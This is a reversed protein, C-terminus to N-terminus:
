RPYTIIIEINMNNRIGDGLLVAVLADFDVVLSFKNAKEEFRFKKFDRRTIFGPVGKGDRLAQHVIEVSILKLDTPKSPLRFFYEGSLEKIKKLKMKEELSEWKISSVPKLMMDDIVTYDKSSWIEYPENESVGSLYVMHKNFMEKQKQTLFDVGFKYDFVVGKPRACDMLRSAINLTDGSYDLVLNETKLCTAPGRSIGIGCKDPVNFNIMPEAKCISPFEKILSFSQKLFKYFKEL